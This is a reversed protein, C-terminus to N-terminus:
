KYLWSYYNCPGTPCLNLNGGSPLDYMYYPSIEIPVNFHDLRYDLGWRDKGFKNPPKFGNTDVYLINTCASGSLRSCRMAWSMGSSDVFGESSATPNGNKAQEGNVDWCQDNNNNNCDKAIKFKTKLADWIAYASDNSADYVILSNDLEAQKLAQNAVSYAKKYASKYQLDQWKKMLSPITVAAVVGIVGLTVLVEALTFAKFKKQSIWIM